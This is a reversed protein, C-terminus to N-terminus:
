RKFAIELTSLLPSHFDKETEAVPFIRDFWDFFDTLDGPGEHAITMTMKGDMVNDAVVNKAMTVIIFRGTPADILAFAGFGRHGAFALLLQAISHANEGFNTKDVIEVIQNAPLVVVM